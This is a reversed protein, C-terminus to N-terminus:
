LSCTFADVDCMGFGVVGHGYEWGILRLAPRRTYLGVLAPDQKDTWTASSDSALCDTAAAYQPRALRLNGVYREYGPQGRALVTCGGTSQWVVYPTLVYLGFVLLLLLWWRARVWRLWNNPM